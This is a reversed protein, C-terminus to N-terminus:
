ISKFFELRPTKPVNLASLGDPIELKITTLRRSRSESDVEKKITTSSKKSTSPKPTKFSSSATPTSRKKPTLPKPTKFSSTQKDASRTLRQDVPSPTRAEPSFPERKIPSKKKKTLDTSKRSPTRNNSPQKPTSKVLSKKSSSSKSNSSKPTPKKPRQPEEYPSSLKYDGGVSRLRKKVPEVDYTKTSKATSNPSKHTSKRAKEIATDSHRSRQNNSSM